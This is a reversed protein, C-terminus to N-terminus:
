FGATRIKRCNVPQEDKLLNAKNLIQGRVKLTIKKNIEDQDKEEQNCNEHTQVFM